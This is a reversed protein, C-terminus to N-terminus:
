LCPDVSPQRRRATRSFQQPGLSNRSRLITLATTSLVTGSVRLRAITGPRHRDPPSTVNHRWHRRRSRDLVGPRATSWENWRQHEATRGSVLYPRFSDPLTPSSRMSRAPPCRARVLLLQEADSARM